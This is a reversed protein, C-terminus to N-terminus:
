ELRALEDLLRDVEDLTNYHVFGVRVAGDELGLREMVELAYYNGHWVAFGREGLRAATEAPSLGDLTFAFTPVRGDMTPLGLLRCTGPLGQLFREGLAREWAVIAEWGISEVYGIAAVLGALLEYPQTGTEFRLGLPEDAQPRVKYPRWSQLLERRGFALGLHPGFFKYPKPARNRM